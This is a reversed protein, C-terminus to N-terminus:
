RLRIKMRVRKKAGGISMEYFITIEGVSGDLSRRIRKTNIEADFAYPPIKYLTSTCEGERFVFTSEIAGTRTVTIENPKVTILSDAVGGESRETYAVTLSDGWETVNCSCETKNEESDTAIGCSDLEEILSEIVIYKEM